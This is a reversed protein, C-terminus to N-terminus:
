RGRAGGRNPRARRVRDLLERESVRELHPDRVVLPMADLGRPERIKL